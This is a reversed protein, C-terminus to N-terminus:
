YHPPRENAPGFSQEGVVVKNSLKEIMARQEALEAQQRTVVENLVAILQDQYELRIEIDILRQEDM